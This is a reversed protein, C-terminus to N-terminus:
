GWTPFQIWYTGDIEVATAWSDAELSEGSAINAQKITVGTETPDQDPGDEYVNGTYTSGSGSTIKVFFVSAGAEPTLGDSLNSNGLADEPTEDAEFILKGGSVKISGSDQATAGELRIEPKRDEEEGEENEETGSQKVTLAAGDKDNEIKTKGLKAKVQLQHLVRYVEEALMQTHGGGWMSRFLSALQDKFEGFEDDPLAM